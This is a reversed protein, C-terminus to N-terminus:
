ISEIRIVELRNQLGVKKFFDFSQNLLKICPLWDLNLKDVFINIDNLNTLCIEDDFLRSKNLTSNVASEIMQLLLIAKFDIELNKGLFIGKYNYKDCFRIITDFDVHGGIKNRVYKWNATIKQVYSLKNKFDDDLLKINKSHSFFDKAYSNYSEFLTIVDIACYALEGRKRMSSNAQNFNIEKSLRRLESNIKFSKYHLYLIKVQLASVLLDIKVTDKM